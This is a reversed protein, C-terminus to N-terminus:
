VSKRARMHLPELADTLGFAEDGQAACCGPRSSGDHRATLYGILATQDPSSAPSISVGPKATKPPKVLEAVSLGM